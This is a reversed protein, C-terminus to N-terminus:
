RNIHYHLKKHSDKHNHLDRKYFYIINKLNDVSRRKNTISNM